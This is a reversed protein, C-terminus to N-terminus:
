SDLAGVAKHTPKAKFLWDERFAEVSLSLDLVDKLGFIHDIAFDVAISEDVGAVGRLDVFAFSELDSERLEPLKTLYVFHLLLDFSPNTEFADFPYGSVDFPDGLAEKHIPCGFLFVLVLRSVGELEFVVISVVLYSQFEIEQRLLADDFDM